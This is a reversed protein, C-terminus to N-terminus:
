ETISYKTQYKLLNYIVDWLLTQWLCTNWLLMCLLENCMVFWWQFRCNYNLEDMILGVYYILLVCQFFVINYYPLMTIKNM